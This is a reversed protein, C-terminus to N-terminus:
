SGANPKTLSASLPTIQLHFCAALATSKSKVGISGATRPKELRQYHTETAFGIAYPDGELDRVKRLVMDGVSLTAPSVTSGARRCGARRAADAGEPM